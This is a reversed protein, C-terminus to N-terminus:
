LQATPSAWLALCVLLLALVVLQKGAQQLLGL